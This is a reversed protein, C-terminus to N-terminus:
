DKTLVLRMDIAIAGQGEPYVARPTLQLSLLEGDRELNINVPKGLTTQVAELMSEFGTIDVM